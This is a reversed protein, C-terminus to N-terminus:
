WALWEALLFGAAGTIACALLLRLFDPLRRTM